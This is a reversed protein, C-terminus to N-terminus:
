RGTEKDFRKQNENEILKMHHQDAFNKQATHFSNDFGEEDRTIKAVISKMETIDDPTIGAGKKRITIIRSYDNQFLNKYFGFSLAAAKRLSSDGKYAPMGNIEDLMTGAEITYHDLMKQASDANKDAAKAFDLVHELLKTQRNVIYDNYQSASKYTVGNRGKISQNCSIIFLCSFVIIVLFPRM